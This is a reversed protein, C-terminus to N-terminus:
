LYNNCAEIINNCAVQFLDIERKKLEEGSELTEKVDKYKDPLMSVRSRIETLLDKHRSVLNDFQELFVKIREYERSLQTFKEEDSFALAMPAGLMATSLAGAIIGGVFGACGALVKGFPHSEKDAFQSAKIAPGALMGVVPMLCIGDIGAQNSLKKAEDRKGQVQDSITSLDNICESHKNIVVTFSEDLRKATKDFNELLAMPDYFRKGEKVYEAILHNEKAFNRARRVYHEAENEIVQYIGVVESIKQLIQPDSNPVLSFQHKIGMLKKSIALTSLEQIQDGLKGYLEVTSKYDQCLDEM